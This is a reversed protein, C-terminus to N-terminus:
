SLFLQCSVGSDNSFCFSKGSSKTSSSPSNCVFCYFMQSLSLYQDMISWWKKKKLSVIFEESTAVEHNIHGCMVRWQSLNRQITHTSGEGQDLRLNMTFACVERRVWELMLDLCFAKSFHGFCHTEAYITKWTVDDLVDKITLAVGGGLFFSQTDLAEWGNTKM